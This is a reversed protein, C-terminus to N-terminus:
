NSAVASVIQPAGQIVKDERQGDSFGPLIRGRVCLFDLEWDDIRCSCELLLSVPDTAESFLRLIEDLANLRVVSVIGFERRDQPHEVNKFIGILVLQYMERIVGVDAPHNAEEPGPRPDRGVDRPEM